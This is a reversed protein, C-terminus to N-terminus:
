KKGTRKPWLKGVKQGPPAFRNVAKQKAKRATRTNGYPHDVANMACARSRPYLKNRARKAHYVNGAKLFPKDPRGGGATVGVCARCNHDLNKEKKSPLVITARSDSKSIIRSCSGSSKCVRGGDGPTLEINFIPTGEPIDKLSLVNGESIEAGPGMTINDGVSIFEPAQMVCRKNNEFDVVLLPAYHGPCKIIDKVEGNMLKDSVPPLKADAFFAFSRSKYAPGGKGR